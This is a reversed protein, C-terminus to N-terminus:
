PKVYDKPRMEILRAIKELADASRKQEKAIDRIHDSVFYLGLLAIVFWANPPVPPSNTVENAFRYFCYAAVGYGVVVALTSWVTFRDPRYGFIRM